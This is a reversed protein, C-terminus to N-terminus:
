TVYGLQRLYEIQNNWESFTARLDAIRMTALHIRKLPKDLAASLGILGSVSGVFDNLASLGIEASTCMEEITSVFGQADPTASKAVQIETLAPNIIYRWEEIGGRVRESLADMEEAVPLFRQAIERTAALKKAFSDAAALRPAEENGIEGLATLLEGIRLLGGTIEPAEEEVRARKELLGESERSDSGVPTIDMPDQPRSEVASLVDDIRSAVREVSGVWQASGLEETRLTSIDVDNIACIDRWLLDDSFLRELRERPSYLLPIILRLTSNTRLFSYFETFEERCNISRLYAPSVFALLISSSALGLRIRDKWNEGAAISDVDTFIAVTSGTASRYMNAVDKVYTRLRGYTADDDIRAYSVFVSVEAGLTAGPIPLSDVSEGDQKVQVWLERFKEVDGDLSNVLKALIPWSPVKTGRLVQNVYSYSVEGMKEALARSSPKGARV